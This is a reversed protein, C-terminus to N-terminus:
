KLQKETFDFYVDPVNLVSTIGSIIAPHQLFSQVETYIKWQGIEFNALLLLNHATLALTFKLSAFHMGEEAQPKFGECKASFDQVM